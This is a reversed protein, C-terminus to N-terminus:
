LTGPLAACLMVGVCWVFALLVTGFWLGPEDEPRPPLNIM